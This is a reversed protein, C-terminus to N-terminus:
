DGEMEPIEVIPLLTCCCNPHVPIEPTDDIPFAKGDYGACEECPWPDNAVALWEVRDVGAQKYRDKVGSNVADMTETRVMATARTIGIKDVARVIDRSIESLTKEQIIGNGVISKINSTTAQSIGSFAAKTVDIHAAIKKWEDQRQELTGGLAISAFMGGAQYAEPIKIEIRNNAPNILLYQAISEIDMAFQDFKINFPKIPPLRSVELHRDQRKGLDTIVYDRFRKFLITLEKEFVKMRRISRTPDKKGKASKRFSAARSKNLL